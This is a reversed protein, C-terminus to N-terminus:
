PELPTVPSVSTLLFHGLGGEVNSPLVVPEAFPNFEALELAERDRQYLYHAEPLAEYYVVRRPAGATPPSGFYELTVEVDSENFSFDRLVAGERVFAFRTDSERGDLRERFGTVAGASDLTAAYFAYANTAPDFDRLRVAVDGARTTISVGGNGFETTDLRPPDYRLVELARVPPFRGAASLETGDPLTVRVSAEAGPTMADPRELEYYVGPAAGAFDHDVFATDVERFVGFSVGDVFGEVRAGPTGAPLGEALAGVTETVVVRLVEADSSWDAYLVAEAPPDELDVDVVRTFADECGTLAAGAALLSLALPLLPSATRGSGSDNPPIPRARM